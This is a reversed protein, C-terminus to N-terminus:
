NCINLDSLWANPDRVRSALERRQKEVQSLRPESVMFSSVASWTTQRKYDARVRWFFDANRSAEVKVSTTDSSFSRFFDFDRSKAVELTYRVGPLPIQSWAFEICQPGDNLKFVSAPFPVAPRVLYDKFADMKALIPPLAHNVYMLSVKRGKAHALRRTLASQKHSDAELSPMTEAVLRENWESRVPAVAKKHFVSLLETHYLVQAVYFGAWLAGCTFGFLLAKELWKTLSISQFYKTM